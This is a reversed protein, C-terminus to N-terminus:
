TRAPRVLNLCAATSSRETSSASRENSMGVFDVRGIARGYANTIQRQLQPAPLGEDAIRVRSVSEGASESRADLLRRGTAGPSHKALAGDAAYRLHAPLPLRLDFSRRRCRGRVTQIACTLWQGRWRRRRFAM